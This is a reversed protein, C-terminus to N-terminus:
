RVHLFPNRFRAHALAGDLSDNRNINKTFMSEYHTHFCVASRVRVQMVALVAEWSLGGDGYGDSDEGDDQKPAAAALQRKRKGAKKSSDAAAAAKKGDEKAIARAGGKRARRAVEDVDDDEDESLVPEGGDDSSSADDGRGESDSEGEDDTDVSSDDAGEAEEEDVGDSSILDPDANVDEVFVEGARREDEPMYYDPQVPIAARAQAATASLLVERVARAAARAFLCVFVCPTAPCFLNNALSVIVLDLSGVFHFLYM